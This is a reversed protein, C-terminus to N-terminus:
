DRSSNWFRLFTMNLSSMQSFVHFVQWWGVFRDPKGIKRSLDSFASVKKKTVYIFEGEEDTLKAVNKSYPFHTHIQGRM